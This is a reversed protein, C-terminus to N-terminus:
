PKTSDRMRDWVKLMLIQPTFEFALIALVPPLVTIFQLFGIAVYALKNAFHIAYAGLGALLVLVDTHSGKNFIENYHQYQSGWFGRYTKFFDNPNPWYQFIFESIPKLTLYMMLATLLLTSLVFAADFRATGIPKPANNDTKQM